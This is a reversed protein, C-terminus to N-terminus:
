RKNNDTALVKRVDSLSVGFQRAIRSPRVGAKLSARVANLKGQALPVSDQKIQKKRLRQDHVAVKEGGRTQRESIAAAILRELQDNDLHSLASSLNTPLAYTAAPAAKTNLLPSKPNSTSLSSSVLPQEASFLDPEISSPNRSSNM